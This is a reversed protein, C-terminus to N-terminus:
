SYGNLAPNKDQDRLLEAAKKLLREVALDNPQVFAATMDPLHSLGGWQNRPLLELTLELRTVEQREEDGNGLSTLVFTVAVSE